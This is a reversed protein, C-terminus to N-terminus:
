RKNTCRKTGHNKRGRFKKTIYWNVNSQVAEEKATVKQLKDRKASHWNVIQYAFKLDATKRLEYYLM